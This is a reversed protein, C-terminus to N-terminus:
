EYKSYSVLGLYAATSHVLMRHFGSLLLPQRTGIRKPDDAAPAEVAEKLPQLLSTSPTWRRGGEAPLLVATTSTSFTARLEGEVRQILCLDPLSFHHKKSGNCSGRGADAAMRRASTKIFAMLKSSICGASPPRCVETDSNYEDEAEEEEVVEADAPEEHSPLECDMSQHQGEKANHTGALTPPDSYSTCLLDAVEVSDFPEADPLSDALRVLPKRRHQRRPGCRPRRTKQCRTAAANNSNKDVRRPRSEDALETEEEEEEEEESDLFCGARKHPLSGLIEIQKRETLNIFADWVARVTSDEFLCKFGTDEQAKDPWYDDAEYEADTETIMVLSSLYAENEYRRLARSGRKRQVLGDPLPQPKKPRVRPTYPFVVSIESAESESTGDFDSFHRLPQLQLSFCYLMSTHPDKSSPAGGVVM